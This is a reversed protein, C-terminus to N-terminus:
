PLDVVDATTVIGTQSCSTSNSTSTCSFSQGGVIVAKNSATVAIAADTRAIPLTAAVGWTNSSASYRSLIPGCGTAVADGSPLAAFSQTFCSYGAAVPINVWASWTGDAKYLHSQSGYQILVDGNALTAAITGSGSGTTVTTWSRGIPDYLYATGNMLFGGSISTQGGIVLVKGSPLLAASHRELSVPLPATPTWTNTGPDYIEASAMTTGSPDSVGGTVLVTGDALRTATHAYRPTSMPAVESWVHTTPEYREVSALSRTSTISNGWGGIALVLGNQLAVIRESTRGENMASPAVFTGSSSDYEETSATWPYNTSNGTVLIRGGALAATSAPWHGTNMPVTSAVANSITVPTDYTGRNGAADFARAELTYNANASKTTDWGAFGFPAVTATGILVNGQIPPAPILWYEVRSVGVNDGANAAISVSGSLKQGAVPSTITVTPPTTDPPAASGVSFALDDRDNYGGATCPSSVGGYVFQVRVAQTTSGSPPIAPLTYNATITQAGATPVLRSTVLTWVPSPATADATYYLLATDANAAWAWVNATITVQKGPALTSGDVTSVSVRDISEDSHFYGYTGDACGGLANSANPEAGGYINARGNVLTGTDCGSAAGSCRPIRLTADFSAQVSLAEGAAAAPDGSDTSAACGATMSSIVFVTGGL